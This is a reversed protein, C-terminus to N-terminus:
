LFSGGAMAIGIIALAIPVLLGGGTRGILSPMTQDRVCNRYAPIILLVIVLSVAGAALKIYDLFTLPLWAALALAPLAAMLQGLRAPLGFTSKAVDAFAILSPWYSTLMALAILLSCALRVAPWSLSDALGITGVPTVHDSATLATALFAITCVANVGLGVALALKLSAASPVHGAAQIVAFVASFAYMFLAFLGIVTPPPGITLPIPRVPHTGALATLSIITIAILSVSIVEFVSVTKLGFWGVGVVVATFLVMCAWAPWHIIPEIAQSAVIIHIVMTEILLFTFLVFFVLRFIRGIRGTFLHKALIAPLQVPPDSRRTLESLTLYLLFSAASSAVLAVVIGVLGLSQAAFPLSLIGTGM